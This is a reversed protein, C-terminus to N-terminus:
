ATKRGILNTYRRGQHRAILDTDDTLEALSGDPQLEHLTLGLERLTQLFENADEGAEDIGQPWFETLLTLNPSATITERLGAIVKPEYGQVDIKILDVTDIKNDRLLADLPRAKVEVQPREGDSAYLRNDGRNDTSIYLPLIAPADSAAVPFAEVNGVANAAITQELYGFSDPDPEVALVRGNPGVARAALATYYGLNAGVDLFTMGDRCASQFFRTEAKEYVGFHLAGSVVPDTPNLVVTAGHIEVQKPLLKRITWNTLQRLPWPRLLYCYVFEALM